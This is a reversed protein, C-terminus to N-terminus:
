NKELTLTQIECICYASVGESRGIHGLNENTTAKINVRKESLNCLKAINAKMAAKYSLIKPKELLLTIDINVLEYNEKTLLKMTEVVFYSSDRDKYQADNDPFHEGIDGLAAAGLIADCLAHFIVDGDSHAITGFPADIKVGALILDEGQALVHVDFGFGVM